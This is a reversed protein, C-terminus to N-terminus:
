RETMKACTARAAIENATFRRTARTRAGVRVRSPSIVGERRLGWRVCARWSELTGLSRLSGRLSTPAGHGGCMQVAKM